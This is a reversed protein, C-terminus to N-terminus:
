ETDGKKKLTDFDVAEKSYPELRLLAEHWEKTVRQGRWLVTKEEPVDAPNTWAGCHSCMEKLRADTLEMFNTTRLGLGLIGDVAGGMACSTMGVSDVSVGCRISWPCPETNPFHKGEGDTRPVGTDRPSLFMGEAFDYAPKGEPKASGSNGMGYKDAFYRLRDRAEQTYENTAIAFKANPAVELTALIYDELNPVLTPEGGTFIIKLHRKRKLIDPLSALWEKYRDLTMDPTHKAATLGCGRNCYHCSLNCNYNIHVEWILTGSAPRHAM